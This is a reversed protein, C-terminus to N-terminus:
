GCLFDILKPSKLCGPLPREMVGLGEEVDVNSDGSVGPSRGLPVDLSREVEAFTDDVAISFSLLMPSMKIAQCPFHSASLTDVPFYSTGASPPAIYASTNSLVKELCVEFVAVKTRM